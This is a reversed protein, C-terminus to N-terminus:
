VLQFGAVTVLPSLSAAGTSVSLTPALHDISSRIALCLKWFSYIFLQPPPLAASGGFLRGVTPKSGMWREVCLRWQAGDNTYDTNLQQWYKKTTFSGSKRHGAWLRVEERWQKLRKECSLETHIKKWFLGGSLNLRGGARKIIKRLACQRPPELHQPNLALLSPGLLPTPPPPTFFASARLFYLGERGTRM